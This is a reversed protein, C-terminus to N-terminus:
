DFPVEGSVAGYGNETKAVNTGSLQRLHETQAKRINDASTPRHSTSINTGYNNEQKLPFLGAYNNSISQEVILRAKMPDNGSLEVLKKYCSKMGRPKYTQRKERKFLLWDAFVEKFDDEVYEPLDVPSSLSKKKINKKRDNVNENDNENDNNNPTITATINPNDEPNDVNNYYPNPKGKSFNPNGGKVGHEAGKCGNDYRKWNADLQPKILRWLVKAIGNLQPEERNLAYIAIARYVILQQKEDVEDIAEFFSRYFIFSDREM